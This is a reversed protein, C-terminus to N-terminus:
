KIEEIVKLAKKAKGSPKFRYVFILRYNGTNLFIKKDNDHGTPLRVNDVIYFAAVSWANTNYGGVIRFFSNTILGVSPERHIDDKFTSRGLDLSISSSGTLFFHKKLVFTYAYGVSPGFEFFSIRDPAIENTNKSLAAPVISSDAKIRGVYAEIGVLFTGASKKQWENQIFSSRYSFKRHNLVLQASGGILNIRLDPRKYYADDNLKFEREALYFGKYFQGFIDVILKRGYQHFQLDLYKTKGRDREPNLFKFGYALNLTAWKYTAGVGFNLTTNPLYNFSYKKESNRFQLSTFKRSFYLRGTVKQPFSKYYATDYQLLVKQAYVDQM